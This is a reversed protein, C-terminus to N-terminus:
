EWDKSSGKCTACVTADRGAWKGALGEQSARGCACRQLHPAYSQPKIDNNVQQEQRQQQQQQATIPTSPKDGTRKHFLTSIAPPREQRRPQHNRRKRGRQRRVRHTAKPELLATHTHTSRLLRTGKTRRWDVGGEQINGARCCVLGKSMSLCVLAGVSTRATTCLAQVEQTRCPKRLGPTPRFHRTVGSPALAMSSARWTVRSSVMARLHPHTPAQPHQNSQPQRQSCHATQSPLRQTTSGPVGDERAHGQCGGESKATKM